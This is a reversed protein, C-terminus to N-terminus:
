VSFLGLPYSGKDMTSLLNNSEISIADEMLYPYIPIASLLAARHGAAAAIHLLNDAPRCHRLTNNLRWKLYYFYTYISLSLLQNSTFVVM